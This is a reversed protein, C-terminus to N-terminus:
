GLLWSKAEKETTFYKTVFAGTTDCEMTQEISLNPIFNKSSLLAIKTFGIYAYVSFVHKNIWEQTKPAITYGFHELNGWAGKPRYIQLFRIYVELEIMYEKYSMQASSDTYRFYFLKNQPNLALYFYKSSHLTKM